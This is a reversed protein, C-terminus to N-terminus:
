RGYVKVEPLKFLNAIQAVCDKQKAAFWKTGVPAQELGLTKAKQAEAYIVQVTVEAIARSMSKSFLASEDSILFYRLHEIPRAAKEAKRHKLYEAESILGTGTNMEAFWKEVPAGFAAHAFAFGALVGAQRLGTQKVRQAIVFDVSPKFSEYVALTQGVSLNRTRAGYCLSSLAACIQKIASADKLGHSITLQDSVSRGGADIVDMTTYNKGAPKKPLGFTVMRTLPQGTLVIMKLTHQGDALEDATNFAIGQHTAIFDGGAHQRAFSQVKNTNLKRNCVNYDLWAIAREPTINFWGTVLGPMTPHKLEGMMGERTPPQRRTPEPNNRRRAALLKEVDTANQLTSM